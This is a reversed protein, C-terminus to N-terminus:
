FSPIRLWFDVWTIFLFCVGFVDGIQKQRQFWFFFMFSSVQWANFSRNLDRMLRRKIMMNTHALLVLVLHHAAAVTVSRVDRFQPFRCDSISWLVSCPVSESIMVSRNQCQFLIWHTRFYFFLFIDITSYVQSLLIGTSKSIANLAKEDDDIGSLSVSRCSSELVFVCLFHPFRLVHLLTSFWWRNRRRWLHCQLAAFWDASSRRRFQDGSPQSIEMGIASILGGALTAVLVKGSFGPWNNM